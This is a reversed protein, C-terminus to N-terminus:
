FNLGLIKETSFAKYLEKGGRRINEHFIEQSYDSTISSNLFNGTLSDLIKDDWMLRCNLGIRSLSVKM